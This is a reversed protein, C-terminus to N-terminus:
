PILGHSSGDFSDVPEAFPRSPTTEVSTQTTAPTSVSRGGYVLLVSLGLTLSLACLVILGKSIGIERLEASSEMNNEM